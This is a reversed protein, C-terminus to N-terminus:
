GVLEFWGDAQLPLDSRLLARTRRGDVAVEVERAASTGDTTPVRHSGVPTLVVVRRPEFPPELRVAPVSWWSRPGSCAIWWWCPAPPRRGCRGSAPLSSRGSGARSGSGCRSAAARHSLWWRRGMRSGGDSGSSTGTWTWWTIWWSCKAAPIWNTCVDSTGGAWGPRPRGRVDGAVGPFWDPCPLGGARRPMTASPVIEGPRRPTSGASTGTM